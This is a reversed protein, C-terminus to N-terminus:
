RRWGRRTEPLDVPARKDAAVQVADWDRAAIEERWPGYLDIVVPRHTERIITLKAQSKM